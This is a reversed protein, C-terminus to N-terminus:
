FRTLHLLRSRSRHNRFSRAQSTWDMPHLLRTPMQESTLDIKKRRAAAAASRCQQLAARALDFADPSLSAAACIIQRM